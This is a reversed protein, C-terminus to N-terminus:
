GREDVVNRVKGSRPNRPMSGPAVLEIELAALNGDELREGVKSVKDLITRRVEERLAESRAEAEARLVLIERGNESRAAIQTASLPMGSLADAFDRHRVNMLGITIVDDSRGLHEFRRGKRGCPCEGCVIRGMDGLDYRILPYALKLLSTILIRGTEGDPARRGDDDVIELYNFDDIAHHLAGSMAACQFGIQGGDNAGIVSSVRRARLESEIWKKDSPSMPSGAYLVKEITLAPEIKKAARLLPALTAPVGQIANLAFKRWAMVFSEPKVKDAFAFTTAGIRSNIHDFSVFSGYLDGAIMCNALRDGPSIGAAALVRAANEMMEEWDREDYLSFKPKGTSGGSRSVYGGSFKGTALGDGAPPMNAEMDERTLIPLSELDDTGRIEAGQLRAGYLKSRKARDILRRLRSDILAAREGEPMADLPHIEACSEPLRSVVLSMFQPLDYAGDHPDDIEGSAMSGIELIRLAGCDGLKRSLAPFEAPAACLGATQLYGRLPRAQALAEKASKVPIVRITRHLPSPFLEPNRDLIVTWDLGSRSELLLGEGRAQAVEFVSRLKRIEVAQDTDVAGAPLRRAEAELAEALAACFDAAEREGEVYCAQPATCANQDWISIDAALKRAASALGERSLGEKTAIALSIKPGFVILRARAPLDTRYARVAEEGGWVAVADVGKKLESLVDAQFAEYSVLAISRSVVRDEDIEKISDIFAPLFVKESSPTKLILVNRTILGEILSGASGVFVNGALVELVVGLPRWSLLTRTREEWRGWGERAGLAEADLKRELLDPDLIWLLEGLGLEVMEKSFGTEQPLRKLMDKRPGFGPDAWSERLRGLLRLIKDTPYDALAQRRAEAEALIRRALAPTMPGPDTWEGFVYFREPLM